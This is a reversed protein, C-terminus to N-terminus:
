NTFKPVFCLVAHVTIALTHLSSICHITICQKADSEAQESITSKFANCGLINNSNSGPTVSSSQNSKVTAGDPAGDLTVAM